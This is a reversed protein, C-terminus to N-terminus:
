AGQGLQDGVAHDLYLGRGPREEDRPRLRWRGKEAPDLGFHYLSRLLLHDAREDPSLAAHYSDDGYHVVVKLPNTMAKGGEHRPSERGGPHLSWARKTISVGAARPGERTAERAGGRRGQTAGAGPGEREPEPERAAWRRTSRGRWADRARPTTTGTQAAARKPTTGPAHSGGIWTSRRSSVSRRTAGPGSSTPASAPWARSSPIGARAWGRSAGRETGSRTARRTSCSWRTGGSRTMRPASASSRSSRSAGRRTTTSRPRERWTPRGPWSGSGRSRRPATGGSRPPSRTPRVRSTPGSGARPAARGSGSWRM